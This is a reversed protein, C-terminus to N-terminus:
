VSINHHVTLLVNLKGNSTQTATYLPVSQDMAFAKCNQVYNHCENLDILVAVHLEVATRAEVNREV